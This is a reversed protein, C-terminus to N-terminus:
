TQKLSMVFLINIESIPCNISQNIRTQCGPQTQCGTQTQCGPQPHKMLVRTGRSIGTFALIM